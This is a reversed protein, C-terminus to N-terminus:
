SPCVIEWPIPGRSPSNSGERILSGNRDRVLKLVRVTDAGKVRICMYPYARCLSDLQRWESKTYTTSDRRCIEDVKQKTAEDLLPMESVIHRMRQEATAMEEESYEQDGLYALTAQIYWEVSSKKKYNAINAMFTQTDSDKWKKDTM